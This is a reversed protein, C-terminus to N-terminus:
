GANAVTSNGPHVVLLGADGWQVPLQVSHPRGDAGVSLFFAVAGHRDIEDRLGTLEVRVSMTGVTGHVRSPSPPGPGTGGNAATTVQRGKGWDAGQFPPGDSATRRSMIRAVHFPAVM